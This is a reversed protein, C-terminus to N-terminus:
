AALAEKIDGEFLLGDSFIAGGEFISGSMKGNWPKKDPEYGARWIVANQMLANGVVEEETNSFFDSIIENAFDIQQEAEKLRTKAELLESRHHPELAMACAQWSNWSDEVMGNVYKGGERHVFYPFKGDLSTFAEFLIRLKSEKM